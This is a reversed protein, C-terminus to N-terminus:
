ELCPVKWRKLRGQDQVQTRWVGFYPLPGDEQTLTPPHTFILLRVRDDSHRQLAQSRRM